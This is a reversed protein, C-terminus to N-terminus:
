KRKRYKGKPNNKQYMEILKQIQDEKLIRRPIMWYQKGPEVRYIFEETEWLEIIQHWPIGIQYTETKINIEKTTIKMEYHPHDKELKQYILIPQVYYLLILMVGCLLLLVGLVITITNFGQSLQFIEPLLITLLLFLNLNSIIKSLRLFKRRAKIYEFQNYQFELNM